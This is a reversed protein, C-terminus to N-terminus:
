RWDHSSDREMLMLGTAMSALALCMAVTFCLWIADDSAQLEYILSESDVMGYTLMFCIPASELSPIM